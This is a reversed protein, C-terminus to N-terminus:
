FSIKVKENVVKIKNEIPTLHANNQKKKYKGRKTGKKVGCNKRKGGNISLEKKDTSNDFHYIAEYNNKKRWLKDITQKQPKGEDTKEGKIYEMKDGLWEFKKTQINLVERLKKGYLTEGVYKRFKKTIQEEAKSAENDWDPILIHTHAGRGMDGETDGRQELVYYMENVWSWSFISRIERIFEEGFSAETPSITIFLFGRKEKRNKERIIEAERYTSHCKTLHPYIETLTNEKIKNKIITKRNRFEEEYIIKMDMEAYFPVPPTTPTFPEEHIRCLEKRDMENEFWQNYKKVFNESMYKLM